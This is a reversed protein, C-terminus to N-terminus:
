NTNSSEMYPTKIGQMNLQGGGTIKVWDTGGDSFPSDISAPLVRARSGGSLM